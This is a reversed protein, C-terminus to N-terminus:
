KSGKSKSAKGATKGKGRPRKSPPEEDSNDEQGQIDANKGSKKPAAKRKKPAQVYKDKKLDLEGEGDTGEVVLDLLVDDDSEEIAEELDPKEKAKVTPPPAGSAKMFPLPHAMANYKRTFNSKVQTSLKVRDMDHPGVGLEMIAEWDEKTIFYSDMLKIVDDLCQPESGHLELKRVLQTWLLPLYQQRIEHRDGSTRLRM